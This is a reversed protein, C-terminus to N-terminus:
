LRQVWLKFFPDTFVWREENKEIIGENQLRELSRQVSSPSVLRYTTIFSSSFIGMNVNVLARLLQQQHATLNQYQFSFYDDQNLILKDIALSLVQHSLQNNNGRAEEWAASALYQVYHPINNAHFIIQSLM